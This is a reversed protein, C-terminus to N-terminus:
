HAAAGIQRKITKGSLGTMHSLEAVSLDGAIMDRLFAYRVDLPNLM